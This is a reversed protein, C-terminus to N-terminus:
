KLPQGSRTFTPSQPAPPTRHLRDFFDGRAIEQVREPIKELEPALDASTDKIAQLLQKGKERGERTSLVLTVLTGIFLGTAFASLSSDHHVVKTNPSSMKM